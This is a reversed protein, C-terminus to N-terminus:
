WCVLREITRDWTIGRVREYGVEGLQRCLARDAHLQDIREALMEASSPPVVYGTVGDQVFELVGGSDTATLVPKHSKFAEITALGYDEDYPAYFFAFCNAYLDILKEDDVYGLFEVRDAVRCKYALRKLAAEEPGEGAILCRASSKVHAMAEILFHIRKLRNLRAVIFVYDGYGDHHYRGEHAPPPYLVQARLGNYRSLRAAVNGSIAFLQRSEALTVTDMQQIMQRLRNDDPTNSFPSHETGFLDYVQRFQQILWTVKYPHKVAYSPFKTAIVLDIKQGESETLNLLRWALYGKLIEEQPYWCFPVRAVEAQFGRQLLERHLSDVLIEAGGYAFPIQSACILIRRSAM